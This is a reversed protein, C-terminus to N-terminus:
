PGIGPTPERGEVVFIGATVTTAASAAFPSTEPASWTKMRKLPGATIIIIIIIIIIVPIIIIAAPPATSPGTSAPTPRGLNQQILWILIYMFLYYLITHLYNIIFIIM